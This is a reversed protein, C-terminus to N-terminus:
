AKTWYLVSQLTRGPGHLSEGRRHGEGVFEYAAAPIKGPHGGIQWCGAVALPISGM